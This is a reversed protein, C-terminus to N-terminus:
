EDAGADMETGHPAVGRKEAPEVQEWQLKRMVDVIREYLQVLVRDSLPGANNHKVNEFIEKERVPEYIPTQRDRKLLGIQQAARARENLLEVLKRDIEDIKLRWDGIDM